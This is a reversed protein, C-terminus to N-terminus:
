TEIGLTIRVQRILNEPEYRGMIDPIEIVLPELSLCADQFTKKDLVRACAASVMVLAYKRCAAEFIPTIDGDDPSLIDCGTLRFGTATLEDGIFLAGQM